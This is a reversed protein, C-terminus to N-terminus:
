RKTKLYFYVMEHENIEKILWITKRKEVIDDDCGNLKFNIGGVCVRARARVLVPFYEM